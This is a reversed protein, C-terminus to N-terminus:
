DRTRMWNWTSQIMESLSSHRPKWSLVKQIRSCDAILVAPDGNRRTVTEAPIAHGTIKRAAEIVETVSFGQGTGVNFIESKGGKELYELARIHAEALDDVHIYDRVCTGSATPYDNGFIKLSSCRGLAVDLARPILHSPNQHYSGIEGKSDAGTANFYRLIVFRGDTSTALDKLIQEAMLKSQGYPSLPRTTEQESIPNSHGPDGYVAATSSFIIKNVGLKFLHHFLTLSGVSNNDYYKFPNRTSEEVEIFAAFHIAAIPHHTAVLSELVQEDAIDGEILPGWRVARRHGHILNDLTIPLYGKQHLIKCTHSGIYGAGGTVLVSKQEREM